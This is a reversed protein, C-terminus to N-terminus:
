LILDNYYLFYNDFLCDESFDLILSFSYNLKMFDRDSWVHAFCHDQLNMTVSFTIYQLINKSQMLKLRSSCNYNSLKLTMSLMWSQNITAYLDHM